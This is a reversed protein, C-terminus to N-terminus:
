SRGNNLFRGAIPNRELMDLLKSVRRNTKAMADIQENLESVVEILALTTESDSNIEKLRELLEITTTKDGGDIVTAKEHDDSVSHMIRVICMMSTKSFPPTVTSM